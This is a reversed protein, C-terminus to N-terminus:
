GVNCQGGAGLICITTSLFPPSPLYQLHDKVPTFYNENLMLKNLQKQLNFVTANPFCIKKEMTISEYKFILIGIWKKPSKEKGIQKKVFSKM